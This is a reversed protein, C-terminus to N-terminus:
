HFDCLRSPVLTSIDSREAYRGKLAAIANVSVWKGVEGFDSLLCYFFTFYIASCLLSIKM